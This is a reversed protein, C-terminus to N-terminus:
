PVHTGAGVLDRIAVALLVVASRSIGCQRSVGVSPKGDGSSVLTLLMSSPGGDWVFLDGYGGNGTGYMRILFSLHHPHHHTDLPPYSTLPFTSPCPCPTSPITILIKQLTKKKQALFNLPPFPSAPLHRPCSTTVSGARIWQGLPFPPCTCIWGEWRWRKLLLASGPLLGM